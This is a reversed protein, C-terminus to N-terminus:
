CVVELLDALSEPEHVGNEIHWQRHLKDVVSVPIHYGSAQTYIMSDILHKCGHESVYREGIKNKFGELNTKYGEM